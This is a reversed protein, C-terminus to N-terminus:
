IPKSEKILQIIKNVSESVQYGGNNHSSHKLITVKANDEKPYMGLIGGVSLFMKQNKVGYCSTVEILRIEM